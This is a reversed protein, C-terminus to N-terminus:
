GKYAIIYNTYPLMDILSKAAKSDHLQGGTITFEIRLGYSDVALHIACHIFRISCVRPLFLAATASAFLSARM